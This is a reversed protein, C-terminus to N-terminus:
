KRKFDASVPSPNTDADNKLDLKALRKNEQRISRIPSNFM